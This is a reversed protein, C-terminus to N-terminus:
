PSAILHNLAAQQEAGDPGSVRDNLYQQVVCKMRHVISPRFITEPEEDQLFNQHHIWADAVVRLLLPANTPNSILTDVQEVAICLQLMSIKAEKSDAKLPLMSLWMSVYDQAPRAGWWSCERLSMQTIINGLTYVANDTIGENDESKADPASIIQVLLPLIESLLPLCILPASLLCQAIGYLSCQRLIPLLQTTEEDLAAALGVNAAQQLHRVFVPLSHSIYKHAAPGGFEIMDDLLCVSAIKMGIPAQESTLFPAFVPAVVTDFVPMFLDPGFLKLYQGMADVLNTMLEDEQELAEIYGEDKDEEELGLHM